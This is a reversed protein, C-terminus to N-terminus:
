NNWSPNPANQLQLLKNFMEEQAGRLFIIENPKLKFKSM